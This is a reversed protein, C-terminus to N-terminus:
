WYKEMLGSFHESYRSISSISSFDDWCDFEDTFMCIMTATFIYCVHYLFNNLSHSLVKIQITESLKWKETCPSTYELAYGTIIESSPLVYTYFFKLTLRRHSLPCFGIKWRIKKIIKKKPFIQRSSSSAYRDGKERAVGNVIYRCMSILIM